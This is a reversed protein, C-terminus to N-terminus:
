TAAAACLKMYNKSWHSINYGNLWNLLDQLIQKKDCADWQLLILSTSINQMWRTNLFCLQMKFIMVNILQKKKYKALFFLHMDNCPIIDKTCIYLVMFVDFLCLLRRWNMPNMKTIM